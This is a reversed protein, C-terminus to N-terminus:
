GKRVRKRDNNKKGKEVGGRKKNERNGKRRVKLGNEAGRRPEADRTNQTPRIMIPTLYYGSGGDTGPAGEM